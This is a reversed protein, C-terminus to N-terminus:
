NEVSLFRFFEEELDDFELLNNCNPCHFLQNIKQLFDSDKLQDPEIMKEFEKNCSKCIFPAVCSEITGRGQFGHIINM